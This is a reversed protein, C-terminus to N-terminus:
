QFRETFVVTYTGALATLFLPTLTISTSFLMWKPSATNGASCTTSTNGCMVQVTITHGPVTPLTWGATNTVDPPVHYQAYAGIDRLAQYAGIYRLAGVTLDAIPLLLGALLTGIVAFELAAVGRQNRPLEM